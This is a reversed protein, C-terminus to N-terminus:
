NSGASSQITSKATEKLWYETAKLVEVERFALAIAHASPLVYQPAINCKVSGYIHSVNIEFLSDRTM